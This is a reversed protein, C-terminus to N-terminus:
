MWMNALLIKFACKLSLPRCAFQEAIRKADPSINFRYHLNPPCLMECPTSPGIRVTDVHSFMEVFGLNLIVLNIQLM